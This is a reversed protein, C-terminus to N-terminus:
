SKFIRLTRVTGDEETAEPAAGLAELFEEDAPVLFERYTMLGQDHGERGPVVM